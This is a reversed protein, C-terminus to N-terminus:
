VAEQTFHTTLYELPTLQGLAQSRSGGGPEARVARGAPARHAAVLLPEGETTECSIPPDTERLM